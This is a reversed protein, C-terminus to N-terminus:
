SRVVKYGLYKGGEEGGGEGGLEQGGHNHAVQLAARAGGVAYAGVHVGSKM